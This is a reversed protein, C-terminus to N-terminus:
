RATPTRVPAGRARGEAVLAACNADKALGPEVFPLIAALPTLLTALAAAVGGQAVADGTQLDIDPKTLPGEVKIPIFLRLLRPKKSQGEFRLNLRETKLNVVGSGEVRVVGTDIIIRNARAVGDTVRFDAVACRIPTQRPDESLLLILGRFINVGLLEAFAQRMQGSPAVVTLTGDASGAAKRVSNGYGTLKARAVIQGEIAPRGASTVTIWDELRAGTLRLDLDTRPTDDQANLRVVGRVAGRRFTVAVPDATLVGDKLDLDLQVQTLPLGPANVTGARYVVKADMARIRDVQLTADPFIRRAAQMRGAMATQEPSATEGKRTSPAGGFLSGLDDFDLRRSRLDATLFPREGRTQVTLTGAVDSDGVRGAAKEFSYLTGRRILRARLRYPPTNPLALGTLAYLDNLDAGSVMVDGDFGGLDFPKLIRATAVIHTSGARIDARFPWPRDPSINLLPDGTVDALFRAGNLRGVGRLAFVGKGAGGATEDTFVRGSFTTKRRADKLSLQGDIITFHRIAPLKAGAGGGGGVSWNSRGDALRILSVRPRVIELRPLVARGAFLPLLEIQVSIRGVRAMDGGAKVWGPQAIRLDNAEVRPQLSWPHVDLDGAIVVTRNLRASALAGVPGRLWNWQFLWLFLILGLIIVTAVGFGIRARPSMATWGRAPHSLIASAASPWRIPLSL